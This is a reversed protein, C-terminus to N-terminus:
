ASRSARYAAYGVVRYMQEWSAIQGTSRVALVEFGAPNLSRYILFYDCAQAGDDAQEALWGAEIQREQEHTIGRHWMIGDDAGEDAPCTRPPIDHLIEEANCRLQDRVAPNSVIARLDAEARALWTVQPM